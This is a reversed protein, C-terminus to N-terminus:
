QRGGSVFRGIRRLYLIPLPMKSQPYQGRVLAAKPFLRNRLYHLRGAGGSARLDSLARGTRSGGLLYQTVAGSPASALRSLVQEPVQTELHKVAELLAGHCVPAIGRAAARIIVDQWEQVTLARALRDIDCLWILRDGGYHAKGAVFYPSLIHQARHVCSHLLGHGRSLGRAHPSLRPLPIAEAMAEDVPILPALSPGNFAQWHLDIDHTGGGPPTVQWVEQTAAEAAQEGLAAVFGQATLIERAANLDKPAVLLDTDGRPRLSADDYLDYALATGKIVLAPVAKADFAALLNAVIQRHRLEWMARARAPAKLAEDATYAFLLPTIGHYEAAALAEPTSDFARDRLAAVLTDRLDQDSTM